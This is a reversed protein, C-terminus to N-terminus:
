PIIIKANHLSCMAIALSIKTLCHGWFSKWESFLCLSQIKQRLHDAHIVFREAFGKMWRAITTRSPQSGKAIQNYSSGNVYKTLALEQTEWDYWRRPSLCEPLVSCTRRCKACRFRPINVPNFSDELKNKRDAQRPYHGHAHLVNHGCHPCCEPKCNSFDQSTCEIYQKLTSIGALICFM